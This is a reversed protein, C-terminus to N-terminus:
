FLKDAKPKAKTQKTEKIEIALEKVNPDACLRIIQCKLDLEFTLSESNDIFVPASMDYHVSLVGVVDAGMLIKEGYSCDSYPTGNLMAECCNETGGNLLQNFMKFRVHKFLGNVAAETKSSQDAKYQDILALKGDLEAIQIGLEKERNSLEQIRAAAKKHQDAAALAKDIETLLAAKESRKSEIDQLQQTPPAGIEKQATDIDSVIQKWVPDNQPELKVRHQLQEDIKRIEQEAYTNIEQSEILAKDLNEQCTKLELELAELQSQAKKKLGKQEIGLSSLGSLRSEHNAKLEDIKDAPLTQGCASCKSQSFDADKLQTYEDRTQQLQIQIQEVRMKQSDIDAKKSLMANRAKQVLHSKEAVAAELDAKKQYLPKHGATDNQLSTERSVKKAKLVNLDEIQEQRKSEGDLLEKRHRDMDNISKQLAARKGDLTTDEQGAYQTLIGQQEDIRPNIEDREKVLLKKQDVIVKRFADVERGAMEAILDEFGASLEIKGALEMLIVRRDTWHLKENVFHLDTLIQFKSEPMLNEAFKNYEGVLMPVDDVWVSTPYTKKGQKDTKEDINRKFTHRVSDFQLVGIVSVTLGEIPRNEKDLPYVEFDKRGTTDKGKILWQLSDAITTKGTGNAGTITACRGEPNFRFSKIGKFNQISLDILKIQM